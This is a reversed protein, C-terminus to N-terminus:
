KRATLWAITDAGGDVTRRIRFQETPVFEYAIDATVTQETAWAASSDSRTELVVTDGAGLDFDVIFVNAGAFDRAWFVDGTEGVFSNFMQIHRKQETALAQSSPSNMSSDRAMFRPM